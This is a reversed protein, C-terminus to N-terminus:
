TGPKPLAANKALAQSYYWRLRLSDVPKKVKRQKQETKKGEEKMQKRYGQGKQEAAGKRQM